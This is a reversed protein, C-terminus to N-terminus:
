IKIKRYELPTKGKISKFAESFKSSNAYGVKGAISTISEDTQTLLTAAMDMRYNRM